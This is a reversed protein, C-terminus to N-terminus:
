RRRSWISIQLRGLKSERLSKLRAESLSLKTAITDSHYKSELLEEKLRKLEAKAREFDAVIDQSDSREVIQTTESRSEDVTANRTSAELSLQSARWDVYLALIDGSLSSSTASGDVGRKTSLTVFPGVVNTLSSAGIQSARELFDGPSCDMMSIIETNGAEVSTVSDDSPSVTDLLFPLLRRAAETYTFDLSVKFSTEAASEVILPETVIKELLETYDSMSDAYLPYDTGFLAEHMPTRNMICPKGLSGYELLKTSLEFSEDLSEHRWSIGVDSNSILNRAVEREVGGHWTVSESSRLLYKVEEVFSPNSEDERFQDGAVSLEIDKYSANIENFGSIIQAPNWERVFKGSYVFKKYATKKQFVQEFSKEVNPVMPYLSLISQRRIQGHLVDKELYAAMEKTQMIFKAGLVALARISSAVDDAPPQNPNVIGTVYLMMNRITETSLRSLASAVESSRIIKSDYNGEQEQFLILEAAEQHSIYDKALFQFKTRGVYSDAFPDIVRVHPNGLVEKLVTLRKVPTSLLLDVQVNPISSIMNAMAPLFFASGDIVNTDIYGYLLVRIPRMKSETM